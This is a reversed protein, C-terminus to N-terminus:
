LGLVSQVPPPDPKGVFHLVSSDDAFTGRRRRPSSSVVELSAGLEMLRLVYKGHSETFASEAVVFEKVEGYSPSCNFFRQNLLSELFPYDPESGFLTLQNPDTADSFQFLGSPDVKWMADKMKELGLIHGTAYFLYYDVLDKGNRMEFSRVYRAGAYSRLQSDYLTWLKRNRVRPDREAIVDSGNLVVLFPTLTPVRSM